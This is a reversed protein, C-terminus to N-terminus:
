AVAGIGLLSADSDTETNALTSDRWSQFMLIPWLATSYDRRESLHTEWQARIVAANFHGGEALRKSDFGAEAWDRLPGRLWQGLPIAFGAKPRDLLHRPVYSYLLRRLLHKGGEPRIKMSVPTRLAFEVVKYDLFPARTELGVAMSARDVKCLIDDPLYDLLDWAMMQAVDGLGDIRVQQAHQFPFAVGAVPNASQSWQSLLLPYLTELNGGAEILSALKQAKHGPQPFRRDLGTLRGLWDVRDSGILKLTGSMAKRVGPPIRELARHSRNFALYRSYGGFLEDGGDGSLAVTVQERALKSLLLTPIQSSDAFPEDYIEALRPIVALTDSASVRLEHHDTGLHTAVERAYPSEDFGAEDFGITFTKVSSTSHAKQLAAIMSSDYGGSLFTGVPVDAVSQRAVSKILLEELKRIAEEEDLFHNAAAETALASLSWYREITLHEFRGPLGTFSSPAAERAGASMQLIAGPVLKFVGRYISQPAPVYASRVLCDLSGSDVANDFGPVSRLAKLESAFAFQCGVWGYYLPKEGMRDRALSLTRSERDWLGLAFMGVSRELAALLGWQEIAALMTETDSHGRWEIDGKAELACRIDLHNYIEGNYTLVYRGSSSIMPQHGAASIDIVSLRRHGFGLGAETDTWTGRDNPGRHALTDAMRSIFRDSLGRTTWIGAIGCM